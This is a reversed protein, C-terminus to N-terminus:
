RRRRIISMTLDQHIMNLCEGDSDVEPDLVDDDVQVEEAEVAEVPDDVGEKASTECYKDRNKWITSVTSRPVGM